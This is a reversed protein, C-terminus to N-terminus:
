RRGRRTSATADQEAIRKLTQALAPFRMVEGARPVKGDRLLNRKAGPNTFKRSGNAWDAAVRPAVVFGDQAMAIAPELLRSLPMTGHDELLRVWGDIAGPVTVAHM